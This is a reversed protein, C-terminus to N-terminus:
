FREGRESLNNLRFPHKLPANAGRRYISEGREKLLLPPIFPPSTLLCDEKIIRPM